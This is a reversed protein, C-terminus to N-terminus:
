STLNPCMKCQQGAPGPAMQRQHHKLNDVLFMAMEACFARSQASQEATPNPVWTFFSPDELKSKLPGLIRLFHGGMRLFLTSAYLNQIIRGSVDPARPTVNIGEMMVLNTQHNQCLMMETYVPRSGEQQQQTEKEQNYHHYHLKANALHGDGQAAIM